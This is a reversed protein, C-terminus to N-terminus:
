EDSLVASGDARLMARFWYSRLARSLECPKAGELVFGYYLQFEEACHENYFFGIEDGASYRQRLVLEFRALAAPAAPPAGPQAPRDPSVLDCTNTDDGFNFLDLYPVMLARGSLLWFRSTALDFARAFEAASANGALELADPAARRLAAHSAAVTRAHRAALARMVDSSAALRQASWTTPTDLAVADLLRAYPAWPSSPERRARAGEYLIALVLALFASVRARAIPPGLETVMASERSLLLRAPVSAFLAGSPLADSAVIGRVLAKGHRVTAVRTRNALPLSAGNLVMWRLLDDVIAAQRREPPAALASARDLPALRMAALFDAYARLQQKAAPTRNAIRHGEDRLQHLVVVAVASGVVWRLAKAGRSPAM